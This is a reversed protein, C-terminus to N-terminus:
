IVEKRINICETCIHLDIAGCNLSVHMTTLCNDDAPTCTQPSPGPSQKGRVHQGAPTVGRPTTKVYTKLTHYFIFFFVNTFMCWVSLRRYM